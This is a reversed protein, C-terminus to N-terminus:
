WVYNAYPSPAKCASPYTALRVSFLPQRNDLPFHHTSASHFLKVVRSNCYSNRPLVPTVYIPQTKCFHLTEAQLNKNRLFLQSYGPSKDGPGLPVVTLGLSTQCRPIFRLREKPVQIM